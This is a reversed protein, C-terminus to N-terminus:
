IQLQLAFGIIKGDQDSEIGHLTNNHQMNWSDHLLSIFFM